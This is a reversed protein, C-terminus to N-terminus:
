CIRQQADHAALALPKEIVKASDIKSNTTYNPPPHPYLPAKAGRQLRDKSALRSEAPPM